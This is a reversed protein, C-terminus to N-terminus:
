QTTLIKSINQGNANCWIHSKYINDGTIPFIKGNEQWKVSLLKLNLYTEASKTNDCSNTNDCSAMKNTLCKPRPAM